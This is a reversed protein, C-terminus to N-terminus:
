RFVVLMLLGIVMSTLGVFRLQGDSLKTAQEFIRRWGGPNLFPLLGEFVLVLALAMLLSDGM